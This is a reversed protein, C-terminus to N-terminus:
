YDPHASGVQTRVPTLGVTSNYRGSDDAPSQIHYTTVVGVTEPSYDYSEWDFSYGVAIGEEYRKGLTRPEPFRVTVSKDGCPMEVPDGQVGGTIDSYDLAMTGLTQLHGQDIKITTEDSDEKNPSVARFDHTGGRYGTSTPPGEHEVLSYPSQVEASDLKSTANAPIDGHLYSAVRSIAKLAVPNEEEVAVPEDQGPVSIDTTREVDDPKEVPSLSCLLAGEDGTMVWPHNGCAIVSYSPASYRGNDILLRLAQEVSTGDIGYGYAGEVLGDVAMLHPGFSDFDGYVQPVQHVAEGYEAVYASLDGGAIWRLQHTAPNRPHNGDGTAYFRYTTLGYEQCPGEWRSANEREPPDTLETANAIGEPGGTVSNGSAGFNSLSTSKM